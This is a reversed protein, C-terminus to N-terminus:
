IKLKITKTAWNQCGNPNNFAASYSYSNGQCQYAMSFGLRFGSDHGEQYIQKDHKANPSYNVWYNTIADLSNYADIDQKTQYKQGDAYGLNYISQDMLYFGLGVVIIALITYLYKM